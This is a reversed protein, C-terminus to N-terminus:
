YNKTSYCVIRDGKEVCWRKPKRKVTAGTTDSKETSTEAISSLISRAVKASPSSNEVIIPIEPATSDSIVQITSTVLSSPTSETSMKTSSSSKLLETTSVTTTLTTATVLEPTPDTTVRTSATVIETSSAKTVEISRLLKSTESTTEIKASSGSNPEISTPTSANPLVREFNIAQDSRLKPIYKKDPSLTEDKNPTGDQAPPRRPNNFPGKEYGCEIREHHMRCGNGMDVFEDNKLQGKNKNYGCLLRNNIYKCIKGNYEYEACPKKTDPETTDDTRISQLLKLQNKLGEGGILEFVESTRPKEVSVNTDVTKNTLNHIKPNIETPTTTPVTETDPTTTTEKQTTSTTTTDKLLAKIQEFKAAEYSLPDFLVHGLKPASTVIMAESLLM